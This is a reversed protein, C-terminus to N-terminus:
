MDDDGAASGGGSVGGADGDGGDNERPPNAVIESEVYETRKRWRPHFYGAQVLSWGQKLCIAIVHRCPRGTNTPEGCDMQLIGHEMRGTRPPPAPAGHARDTRTVIFLDPDSELAVSYNYAQQLEVSYKGAVYAGYKASVERVNPDQFIHAFCLAFSRVFCLM